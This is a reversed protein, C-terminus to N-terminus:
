VQYFQGHFGFPIHHPVEARALETFSSADLVLLFSNGKQVNLVVSMIVGEDEKIANPSPIFVPEGPYCDNQHWIQVNKDQLDIKVLRDLFNNPNNKDSGVGYVFHYKKTNALQYNIRPLEIPEASMVEYKVASTELNIHYRRLEGLRPLEKDTEGRLIDLYLKEIVSADPYASIDLTIENENEFANIHHFAFFAESKCNGVLKGDKRSVVLFRAGREPQWQYNEIFPQGSLLLSFLNVVFPYEVLVLYNETLAFSHMYSPADTPISSVLERTASHDPLRYLNYTSQASFNTLFNLSEKKSFDYHPHATTTIGPLADAYKIVGLTELTQPNFEIPLPLETLAVYKDALKSINVNANDTFSPSFIQTFRQFISRCPDTAFEAYGIKGKDRAYQYAQSELFKNVYSVQGQAFSFAHLMSFGDFWHRMKIDGVEFRAPGNRILTGSLWAPLRGTITLKEISIEKDLTSFGLSFKNSM